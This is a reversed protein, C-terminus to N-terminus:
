GMFSYHLQAWGQFFFAAAGVFMIPSSQQELQHLATLEPARSVRSLQPARSSWRLKSVWSGWHCKLEAARAESRTGLGLKGLGMGTSLHQSTPIHDQANISTSISNFCINTKLCALVATNRNLHVCHTHNFVGYTTFHFCSHPLCRHALATSTPCQFFVLRYGVNFINLPDWCSCIVTLPTANMLLTLIHICMIFSCIIYSNVHQM